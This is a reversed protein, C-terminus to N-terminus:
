HSYLPKPQCHPQIYTDNAQAVPFQLNARVDCVCMHKICAREAKQELRYACKYSFGRLVVQTSGSHRTVLCGCIPTPRVLLLMYDYTCEFYRSKGNNCNECCAKKHKRGSSLKRAFGGVKVTKTLQRQSNRRRWHSQRGVVYTTTM